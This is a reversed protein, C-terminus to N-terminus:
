GRRGRAKAQAAPNEGAQRATVKNLQAEDCEANIADFIRFIEVAKNSQDMVAGLQPLHGKKYFGYYLLMQHWVYGRRHLDQRPCAWTQEDDVTMPLRAPNSWRWWDGQRDVVALPDDKSSPYREAECGWDAQRKCGVCQREPM